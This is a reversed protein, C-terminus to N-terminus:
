KLAVLKQVQSRFVKGDFGHVTIVYLYVGNARWLGSNDQMQWALESGQVLDSAFVKHGSLDFVEVQIGSIGIGQVAFNVISGQGLFSTKIGEIVLSPSWISFPLLPRIVEYRIAKAASNGAKDSVTIMFEKLGLSLTDILGGNPTTSRVTGIGSLNDEVSWDARVQNYVTYTAGDEPSNVTITPETKDINVTAVFKGSNGAQDVGLGEVQNIGETNVTVPSNCWAVGSLTDECVFEVQVDTNNWGKENPSPTYKAIITPPMKDININQILFNATNGARDIAMGTVSQDRGETSLIQDPGCSAIGSLSDNCAFNATVDVSHWGNKGPEPTLQGRIQPPTKDVCVAQFAQAILSTPSSKSFIIVFVTWCGELLSAPVTLTDTRTGSDATFAVQKDMSDSGFPPPLYGLSLAAGTIDTGSWSYTVSITGPLESANFWDKEPAVAEITVKDVGAWGMQVWFGLLLMLALSIIMFRGREQM